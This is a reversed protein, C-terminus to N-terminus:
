RPSPQDNPDTTFYFADLIAAGATTAEKSVKMVHEGVSLSVGAGIRHWGFAGKDGPASIDVEPFAGYQRGDFEVVIRRVGKPQFRDVYDRVWVHYTAAKRIDLRYKLFEGGVALYWDGSGSYPPRWAPGIEKTNSAPRESLPRISSEIENEAEILIRDVAETVTVAGTSPVSGVRRLIRTNPAPAPATGGTSADYRGTVRESADWLFTMGQFPGSGETAGPKLAIKWVSTIGTGQEAVKRPFWQALTVPDDFTFKLIAESGSVQGDIRAPGKEYRATGTVQNGSQSLELLAYRQTNGAIVMEWQGSLDAAAAIGASFGFAWLLAACLTLRTQM